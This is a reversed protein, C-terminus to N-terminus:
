LSDVRELREIYHQELDARDTMHFPDSHCQPLLYLNVSLPTKM